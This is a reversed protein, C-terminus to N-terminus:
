ISHMVGRGVYRMEVTGRFTWYLIGRAPQATRALDLHLLSTRRLQPQCLELLPSFSIGEM